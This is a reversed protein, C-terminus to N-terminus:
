VPVEMRIQLKGFKNKGFKYDLAYLVYLITVLFDHLRNSYCIFRGFSSGTWASWIFM